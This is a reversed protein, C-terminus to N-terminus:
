IGMCQTSNDAHHVCLTSNNFFGRWKILMQSDLPPSGNKFPPISIARQLIHLGTKGKIVSFNIFEGRKSIPNQGCYTAGRVITYDGRTITLAKDMSFNQCIKSM